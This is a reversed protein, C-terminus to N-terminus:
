CPQVMVIVDSVNTYQTDSYGILNCDCPAHVAKIINWELDHLHGLIYGKEIVGHPTYIRSFIGEIDSKVEIMEKIIVDSEIEDKLDINEIFTHIMRAGHGASEKDISTLSRFLM